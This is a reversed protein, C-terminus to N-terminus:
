QKKERPVVIINKIGYAKTKDMRMYRYVTVLAHFKPDSVFYKRSRLYFHDVKVTAMSEVDYLTVKNLVYGNNCLSANAVLSM